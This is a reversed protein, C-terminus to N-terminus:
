KSSEKVKRALFLVNGIEEQENQEAYDMEKKLNEAWKEKHKEIAQFDKTKEILESRRQELFLEAKKVNDRQEALKEEAKKIEFDLSKLHDKGMRIKEISLKGELMKQNLELKAVEKRQKAAEVARVCEAEKEKEAELAKRADGLAKEADEKAKQRKELVIQLRYKQAM